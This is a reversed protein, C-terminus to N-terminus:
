KTCTYVFAPPINWLTFTIKVKAFVHSLEKRQKLSYQFQIYKGTDSLCSQFTRLLKLTLRQYFNSLPLSSIIVDVKSINFQDLYAQLKEASDNIFVVRKDVIKTQLEQFFDTNLEFVLFVSDAQMRSLIKETFVGTGPGIEVIVKTKKFDINELMKNTLFTSSPSIAGVMKKEKWFRQFFSKSPLM